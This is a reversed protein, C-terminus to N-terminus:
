TPSSDDTDPALATLSLAHIDTKMLDTLSEYVLRHRQIPNLGVFRESVIHVRFHGMGGAAGAHGVHLHSEDLVEVLQPALAQELRRRIEAVRAATVTAGSHDCVAYTAPIRGCVCVLVYEDGAPLRHVEVLLAIPLFQKAIGPPNAEEAQSQARHQVYPLNSSALCSWM